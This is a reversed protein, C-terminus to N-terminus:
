CPAQFPQGIQHSLSTPSSLPCKDLRAWQAMRRLMHTSCLSAVQVNNKSPQTPLPMNKPPHRPAWAIVSHVHPHTDSMYACMKSGRQMSKFGICGGKLRQRYQSPKIMKGNTGSLQCSRPFLICRNKTDKDGPRCYFVSLVPKNFFFWHLWSDNKKKM